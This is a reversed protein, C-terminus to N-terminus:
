GARGFQKRLWVCADDAATQATDVMGLWSMFGHPMGAYRHLEVPVGAATLVPGYAEGPDRSPDLEATGIFAPPLGAHTAARIPSAWPHNQETEPHALYQHWFYDIDDATLIPGDAFEAMSPLGHSPYDMSGYFLLQACLRPGAEDRARIAVAASLVAGASDGGVAVKAPDGGIEGGHAASWQVAAYCDNVAAPFRHEPALRYDVSVVICEAGHCLGRCIMDQTDLDGVVWGGGHFYVLIPRPGEAVPKYIRVPLDGAPGPIAWDFVDRLPVPLKPTVAAFGKVAARLQEVPVSRAAAWGSSQGLMNAIQSDLPM